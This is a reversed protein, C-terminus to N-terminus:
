RRKRTRVAERSIGTSDRDLVLHALDPLVVVLAHIQSSKLHRNQNGLLAVFFVGYEGELDAYYQQLMSQIEM